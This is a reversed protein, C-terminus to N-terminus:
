IDLGPLKAQLTEQEVAATAPVPKDSQSRLHLRGLKTRLKALREETWLEQQRLPTGGERDQMQILAIRLTDFAVAPPLLDLVRNCLKWWELWSWGIRSWGWGHGKPRPFWSLLLGSLVSWASPSRRLTGAFHEKIARELVSLKVRSGKSLYALADTIPESRAEPARVLLDFLVRVLEHAVANRHEEATRAAELMEQAFWRLNDTDVNGSANIVPREQQMEKAISYL